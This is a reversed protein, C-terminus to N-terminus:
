LYVVEELIRRGIRPKLGEIMVLDVKVGVTDSLYEEMEVLAFLGFAPEPGFDVLVDLDSDEKQENRIYSGFVGIRKVNYKESLVPVAERLRELVADTPNM